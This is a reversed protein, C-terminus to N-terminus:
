GVLREEAAERFVVGFRRSGTARFRGLKSGLLCLLPRAPRVKVRLRQSSSPSLRSFKLKNNYRSSTPNMLINRTEKNVVPLDHSWQVCVTMYMCGSRTLGRTVWVVLLAM